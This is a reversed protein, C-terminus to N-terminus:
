RTPSRLWQQFARLGANEDTLMLRTFRDVFEPTMFSLAKSTAIPQYNEQETRRFFAFQKGDYRWLERVGLAAYVSPRDM